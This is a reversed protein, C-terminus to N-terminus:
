KQSITNDMKQKYIKSTNLTSMKLPICKEKRILIDFQVLRKLLVRPKILKWFMCTQSDCHMLLNYGPCSINCVSLHVSPHVSPRLANRYDGGVKHLPTLISCHIHLDSLVASILKVSCLDELPDVHNMQIGCCSTYHTSHHATRIVM